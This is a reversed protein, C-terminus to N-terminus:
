NRGPGGHSPEPSPDGPPKPDEAPEATPTAGPAPSHRLADDPRGPTEAPEASKPHEGVGAGAAGPGGRSQGPGPSKQSGASTPTTDSAPEAAAGTWTNAPVAQTSAPFFRSDLSVVRQAGAMGLGAIAIATASAGLQLWRLIAPGRLRPRSGTAPVLGPDLAPASLEQRLWTEFDVPDDKREHAEFPIRGRPSM